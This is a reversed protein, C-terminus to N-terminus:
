KAVERKPIINTIKLSVTATNKTSLPKLGTEVVLERQSGCGQAKTRDKAGYFSRSSLPKEARNVALYLVYALHETVRSFSCSFQDAGM